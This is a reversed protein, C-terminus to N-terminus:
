SDYQSSNLEKMVTEACNFPNSIILSFTVEKKMWSDFEASEALSVFM